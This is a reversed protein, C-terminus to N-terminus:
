RGALSKAQQLFTRGIRVMDGDILEAHWAGAGDHGLRAIRDKRVIVSRHLRIFQHPDLKAELSTITEHLLYSRGDVFLRMYDREAEIKQIDSATVRILESRHPVWFIQSEGPRRQQQAPLTELAKRARLLGRALREPSVPKLLYDVAVTDFAEVAFDEFATVFILAPSQPRLSLARAVAMGDLEPMAIDLLLLDPALESVRALADSGNIATGVIEVDPLDTCLSIIREIALPEDDVILTRLPSAETM